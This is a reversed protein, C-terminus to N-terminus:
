RDGGGLVTPIDIGKSKARLTTHSHLDFVGSRFTDLLLQTRLKLAKYELAGIHGEEHVVKYTHLLTDFHPEMERIYEKISAFAEVGNNVAEETAM